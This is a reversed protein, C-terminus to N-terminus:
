YPRKPYLKGVDMQMVKDDILGLNRFPCQDDEGVGLENRLLLYDYVASVIEEKKEPHATIFDNIPDGRKQILFEMDDLKLVLKKGKPTILCIPRKLHKTKTLHIFLVASNDRLREHAIQYSQYLRNKHALHRNLTESRVNQIAKSLPFYNLIYQTRMHKQKFFKVVLTGDESVFAYCEKGSGFLTFTQSAVRDLLKEQDPSPLGFDWRPDYGYRSHIKQYSFGRAKKVCSFYTLFALLAILVFTGGYFCKKM